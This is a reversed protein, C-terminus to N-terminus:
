FNRKIINDNRSTFKIIYNSTRNNIIRIKEVSEPYVDVERLIAENTLNYDNVKFSNSLIANKTIFESISRPLFDAQLTWNEIVKDQVQEQRYEQTQYIKKEFEESDEYFLGRVRREQYWDLGTFDFESSIINGDQITAIRVTADAAQDSYGKLTFLESEYTSSVGVVVLDAKVQYEGGGHLSYVSEWELLYGVYLQQEASGTFGNFFTGYTADNLDAIEVGNKYLKISVTDAAILRRFLFERKDNKYDEGGVEAFVNARYECGVECYCFEISPIDIIEPLTEGLLKTALGSTISYPTGDALQITIM